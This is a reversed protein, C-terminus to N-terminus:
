EKGPATTVSSIIRRLYAVERKLVATLLEPNNDHYFPMLVLAGHFDIAALARIFDHWDTVGEDIPAFTRRWGKDPASAAAVDRVLITDKIGAAALHEGLLRASRGWNEFGEFSQNGPDLEVGIWRAPLGQVLNWAAAASPVLTGHHLQYVARIGNRACLAALREMQCRANSLACRTDAPSDDVYGLRFDTIGNAALVALPTPDAILNAAPYSTSAFTVALGEAQMSRMFVPLETALGNPSVWYGTRVVVNTTDLGVARVHAALQPASLHRFFKPFLSLTVHM